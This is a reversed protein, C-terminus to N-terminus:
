LHNFDNCSGSIYCFTGRAAELTSWVVGTPRSSRGCRWSWTSSSKQNSAEALFPESKPCNQDLGMGILYNWSSFHCNSHSFSSTGNSQASNRPIGSTWWTWGSEDLSMNGFDEDVKEIRIEKDQWRETNVSKGVTQWTDVTAVTASHCQAQLVSDVTQLKESWEDVTQKCFEIFRGQCTCGGCTPLPSRSLEWNWCPSKWFFPAFTEAFDGHPFWWSSVHPFWMTIVM